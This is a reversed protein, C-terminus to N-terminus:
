ENDTEQLIKTWNTMNMDNDNLFVKHKLTAKPKCFFHASLEFVENAGEKEQM